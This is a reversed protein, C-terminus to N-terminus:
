VAGARAMGVALWIVLVCVAGRASVVACASARPIGAGFGKGVARPM